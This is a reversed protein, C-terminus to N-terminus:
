DEDDDDQAEAEECACPELKTVHGGQALYAQVLRDVETRSLVVVEDRRKMMKSRKEM